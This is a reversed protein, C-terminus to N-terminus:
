PWIVRGVMKRGCQRNKKHVILPFSAVVYPVHAVLPWSRPVLATIPHKLFSSQFTTAVQVLSSCLTEM